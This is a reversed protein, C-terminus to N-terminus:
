HVIRVDVESGALDEHFRLRHATVPTIADDRAITAHVVRSEHAWLRVLCWPNSSSRVVQVETRGGDDLEYWVHKVNHLGPGFLYLYVQYLTQGDVTRRCLAVPAGGGPDFVSDHVKLDMLGSM